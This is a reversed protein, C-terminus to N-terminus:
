KKLHLKLVLSHDNQEALVFNNKELVRLSAKNVSATEAILIKIEPNKACWQVLASITESMYGHNQYGPDIGYGIEAEGNRSPEGHFCIGGILAKTTKEIIIWLTYFIPNKSPDSLNPLMDSLIAEATEKELPSAPPLLGAKQAFRAPSNMYEALENYTLPKITLRKTEIM